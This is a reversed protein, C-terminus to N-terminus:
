GEILEKGLTLYIFNELEHLYSVILNGCVTVADCAEVRFHMGCIMTVGIYTRSLINDSETKERKAFTDGDEKEFWLEGLLEPTIPIPEIENLRAYALHDTRDIRRHYGIKRKTIGEIRVRKNECTLLVHSGIRLQKVDVAM